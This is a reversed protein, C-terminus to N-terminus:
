PSETPIPISIRKGSRGQNNGLIAYEIACECMRINVSSIICVHGRIGTFDKSAHWSYNGPCMKLFYM